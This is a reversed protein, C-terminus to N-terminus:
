IFEYPDRGWFIDIPTVFEALMKRLPKEDGHYAAISAEINEQPDMEDWAIHWGISEALMALFTRITRGNGERFPHIVILESYYHALMEIFKDFDTTMLYDDKKLEQFLDDLSKSLHEVRAFSTAGKSIEVTRLEGAWEYIIGFLQKHISVLLGLNFEEFHPSDQSTLATIEVTTLSAEAGDLNSQTRIDLLNRLIGTTKDIYPDKDVDYPM